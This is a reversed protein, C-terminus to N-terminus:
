IRTDLQYIHHWDRMWNYACFLCIFVSLKRLLHHIFLHKNTTRESGVRTYLAWCQTTSIFCIVCYADVTRWPLTWVRASRLCVGNVQCRKWARAIMLVSGIYTRAGPISARTRTNHEGFTHNVRLSLMCNTPSAFSYIRPPPWNLALSSFDPDILWTSRCLIDIHITLHPQTVIYDVWVCVRM